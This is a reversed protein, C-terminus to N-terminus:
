FMFTTQRFLFTGGFIYIDTPNHLYILFINMRQTFPLSHKGAAVKTWGAYRELGFRRITQLGRRIGPM